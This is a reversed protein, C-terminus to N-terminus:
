CELNLSITYHFIERFFVLIGKYPVHYWTRRPYYSFTRFSLWILTNQCQMKWRFIIIAMFFFMAIAFLCYLSINRLCNKSDLILLPNPLAKYTRRFRGLLYFYWKGYNAGNRLGYIKKVNVIRTATEKPKRSIMLQIEFHKFM